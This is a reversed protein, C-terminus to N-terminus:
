YRELFESPTVIDPKELELGQFDKDGTVFVDVDEVIAAYLIPYDKEDRIEFLDPQPQKPTYVYEFPLKTLFGDVAAGKHPFKREVVCYLEEIVQASILLKHETAAKILVADIRGGPFLAASILVNTDIMIRM